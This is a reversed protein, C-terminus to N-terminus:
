VRAESSNVMGKLAVEFFGPRFIELIENRFTTAKVM